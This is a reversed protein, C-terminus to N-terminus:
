RAEPNMWVAWDGHQIGNIEVALVLERSQPFRIDIDRTKGAGKLDFQEIIKGDASVTLKADGAEALLTKCRFRTIYSKFTMKVSAPGHMMLSNEDAGAADVHKAVVQPIAPRYEADIWKVPYQSESIVKMEAKKISIWGEAGGGKGPKEVAIGEEQEIAERLTKAEVALDIKGAKTLQVEKAKLVEALKAALEAVSGAHTKLIGAMSEDYTKRLQKLEQSATAPLAPLPDKGDKVHEIEDRTTLVEELKGSAKVKDLQRNLAALYGTELKALQEDRQTTVAARRKEFAEGLQEVENAAGAVSAAALFLCCFKRLSRTPIRFSVNM